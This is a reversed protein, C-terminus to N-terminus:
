DAGSQVVRDLVTGPYGTPGPAGRRIRLVTVAPAVVDGNADFRVRGTLGATLDTRMLADLLGARSGGSHAAADLLVGTAEASYVATPEIEVGPLTAGFRAVFARGREGLSAATLGTVALYARDAAAGAHRTLFRTPTFGDVLLVSTRRPLVQRLARLVAAGNTDLLGGLFVADPRARAVAAALRDYDAAEPAWRRRAVVAAGLARAAHTFRDALARGYLLDGDDLAAVRRAGLDRALAALAVAQHDDPPYVRAFHRRGAPYLSRLEGPPAGPTHHTLGPYSAAPSVMALPGGPARGLEPLAAAACPSNLTGIVGIVRRDAAYARANAACRAPDFLGTRAISDDCSQIGVRLPGARFGREALVFAAAQAMQQASLRVGGQLPLDTVILRDPRGPGRYFTASCHAHVPAGTRADAAPRARDGAVAVWIGEAGATVARPTGGLDLTRAVRGAAADVQTVTGRLPNAAWLSGGGFALAAVGPEVDITRMVLRPGPRVRWVAGDGPASVWASGGGVALGGVSSAPVRDRVAVRNRTRDIRAIAGDLGLVWVGGDGAAVARAQLGRIAAVVRNTRPDIRLVAYDPAIVWVADPEVAIRNEALETTARGTRPVPIRARVTRTAPDVRALTAVIPGAAQAAPVPKGGAIWLAGAGTALDVPTTGTAFTTAAGSGTDVRSITQGDVDISWAAGAGTAVAGPTGPVTVTRLVAGTRPDLRVLAAGDAVARRGGDDDGGGALAMAGAALAVIAAGGATAAVWRRRRRPPPGRHPPVHLAPAPTAALIEAQLRRLRSGPELGLEDALRRRGDDYAALAEPGRGCRYLALMLQARPRERLPEARVLADLEPVLAADEGRALDAEIRLELADLRAEELAPAVAAAFPENELDALPRGRWLGLAVRLRAAAGEPDHEALQRRGEAALREFRRLDLQDDDIQLVYGPARTVLVDPAGLAKRARSV